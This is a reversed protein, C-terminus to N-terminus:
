SRPHALFYYNRFERFEAAFEREGLCPRSALWDSILSVELGCSALLRYMDEPQVGYWDAGGMGFEFVIFPRDRRVTEMAGKLVQFEGGEVDIKCFRVTRQQRVIDDLRATQVVIEEVREDPRDYRRRRLGSYAPNSGVYQFSSRGAADSLALNFVQVTPFHKVLSDYFQPIPEFALHAGLPALRVMHKLLEGRFAGVDIGNSDPRLVREMVAVTQQDYDPSLAVPKRQWAARSGVLSRVRRLKALVEMKLGM